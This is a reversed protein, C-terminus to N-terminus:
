KSPCVFPSEAAKSFITSLSTSFFSWLMPFIQRRAQSPPIMTHTESVIIFLLIFISQEASKERVGHDFSYDWCYHPGDLRGSGEISLSVYRVNQQNDVSSHQLKQFSAFLIYLLPIRPLLYFFTHLVKLM